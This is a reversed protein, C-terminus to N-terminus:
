EALSICKKWERCWRKVTDSNTIHRYKVTMADAFKTQNKYLSPNAQWAEWDEKIKKKDQQNRKNENGLRTREQNMDDHIEFAKHMTKFRWFQEILYLDLDTEVPHQILLHKIAASFEAQSLDGSEKRKSLTERGIQRAMFKQVSPTAEIREGQQELQKALYQIFDKM